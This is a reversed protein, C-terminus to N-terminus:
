ATGYLGHAWLGADGDPTKPDSRRGIRRRLSNANRRQRLRGGHRKALSSLGHATRRIQHMAMTAAQYAYGKAAFFLVASVVEVYLATDGAFILTIDLPFAQAFALMAVIFAAVYVIRRFTLWRIFKTAMEGANVRLREGLARPWGMTPKQWLNMQRGKRGGRYGGQGCGAARYGAAPALCCVDPDPRGAIGADM